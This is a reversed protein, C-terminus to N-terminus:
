GNLITRMDSTVNCRRFVAIYDLQDESLTIHRKTVSRQLLLSVISIIATGFFLPVAPGGAYFVLAFLLISFGISLVSLDALSTWIFGNTMIIESRAKLTEDTDIQRWFVDMAKRHQKEKDNPLNAISVIRSRINEVIRAHHGSNVLRRLPSVYYALLILFAPLNFIIGELTSPARFETFGLIQATLAFYASFIAVPTILRLAKLTNRTM